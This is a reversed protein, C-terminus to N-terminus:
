LLYYKPPAWPSPPLKFMIRKDKRIFWNEWASIELNM